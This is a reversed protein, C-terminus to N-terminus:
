IRISLAKVFSAPPVVANQVIVSGSGLYACEGIRAAGLLVTRPAVHAGQGVITEHEVVAGSNIVAGRGIIAHSNVVAGPFIQVGPEITANPSVIAAPHIISPFEAGQEEYQAMIELRRQLTACSLGVFGIVLQAGQVKAQLEDELMRRVGFADLWPKDTDDVYADFMLGQVQLIDVVVKAHGGAGILILPNANHTM